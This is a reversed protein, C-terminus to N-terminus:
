TSSPKPVPTVDAPAVEGLARRVVEILQDIQYPKTLFGDCGAARARDRDSAMAHASVAIIVLRPNAAKLRRTVEIGDYDPLALDMLVLDPPPDLAALRQAEKGDPAVMPEYGYTQLVRSALVQLQVDDEVVLVKRGM